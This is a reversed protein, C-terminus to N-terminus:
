DQQFYISISTKTPFQKEVWLPNITELHFHFIDFVSKTTFALFILPNRFCVTVRYLYINKTIVIMECNQDIKILREYIHGLDTKGIERLNFKKNFGVRDGVGGAKWANGKGL